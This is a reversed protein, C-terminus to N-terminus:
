PLGMAAALKAREATLWDAAGPAAWLVRVAQIERQDLDLELVGIVWVWPCFFGITPHNITNWNAGRGM